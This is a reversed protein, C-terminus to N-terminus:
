VPRAPKVGEPSMLLATRKAIRRAKAHSGKLLGATRDARRTAQRSKQEANEARNLAEQRAAATAQTIKDDMAWRERAVERKKTEIDSLMIEIKRRAEVREEEIQQHAVTVAEDRGALFMAWIRSGGLFGLLGGFVVGVFLFTGALMGLAAWGSNILDWRGDVLAAMGHHAVWDNALWASGGLILFIFLALFPM